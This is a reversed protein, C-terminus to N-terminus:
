LMPPPCITTMKGEDDDSARTVDLLKAVHYYSCNNDVVVFRDTHQDLPINTNMMPLPLYILQRDDDNMYMKILSNGARRLGEGNNQCYKNYVSSIMPGTYISTDCQAGQEIYYSIIEANVCALACAALVLNKGSLM